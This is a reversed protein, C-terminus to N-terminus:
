HEIGISKCNHMLTAYILTKGEGCGLDYFTKVHMNKCCGFIGEIGDLTIEQYMRDPIRDVDPLINHHKKAQIHHHLEDNLKEEDSNFLHKIFNIHKQHKQM